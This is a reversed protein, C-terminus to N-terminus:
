ALAAKYLRFKATDHTELIRLGRKLTARVMGSGIAPELDLDRENVLTYRLTGGGAVRTDPTFVTILDLLVNYAGRTGSSLGAYGAASHDWCDILADHHNIYGGGSIVQCGASWSVTHRGSWHINITPNPSPEIAGALISEDSLDATFRRNGTDRMVLVGNAKPRFARYCKGLQSIKHWGFRYLHQGPVLFPPKSTMDPNPDTSGFFMFVLGRVLLVMVDNNIRIKADDTAGRRVGVLHVEGPDFAWDSAPLSDARSSPRSARRLDAVRLAIPGPTSTARRRYKELLRFWAASRGAHATARHDWDSVKGELLWRDLHRLTNPGAMGDPKGIGAVGEVTRVYEQFLRTASQTRYDFVGSLDGHPMFGVTRLNAQLARVAGGDRVTFGKWDDNPEARFQDKMAAEHLSAFFGSGSEPKSGRDTVGLRLSAM